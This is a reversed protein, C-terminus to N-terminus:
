AMDRSRFAAVLQVLEVAKGRLSQSAASAQEVLAANQQTVQDMRTVAENVLGFGGAQEACANSIATVVQEVRNISDVIRKMAQGAAQVKTGGSEVQQVATTILTHIEKAAAASRGALTRVESAVVSFGRGHEGAQAAEVAANLALINTQFAIGDITSIIEAMRQAQVHISNMTEVVAAVARNGDDVVQAAQRSIERAEGANDATSKVTATLQEISAATQQLDAAQKETRYSLDDNGQAMEASATDIFEAARRIDSVIASLSVCVEDLAGLVQGTADKPKSPVEVTLDGRALAQACAVAHRLPQSISRVVLWTALASLVVALLLVGLQVAKSLTGLQEAAAFDASTATREARVFDGIRAKIEKYADETNTLVGAATSLGTSKLELTDLSGRAFKEFIPGIALALERESDLASTAAAQLQTRAEAVRAAVDKDLAAVREANFGAGEWAVSQLVMRALTDMNAEMRLAAEYAPLRLREMREISAVVESMSIQAVLAVICLCAFAFLPALAVKTTVSFRELLRM